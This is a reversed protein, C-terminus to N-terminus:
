LTPSQQGHCQWGAPSEDLSVGLPWGDLVAQVTTTNELPKIHFPPDKDVRARPPSKDRPARGGGGNGFWAGRNSM